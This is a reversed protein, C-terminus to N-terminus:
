IFAFLFFFRLIYIYKKLPGMRGVDILSPPYIHCVHEDSRDSRFEQFVLTFDFMKSSGM